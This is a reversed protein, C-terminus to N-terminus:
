WIRKAVMAYRSVGGLGVEGVGKAEKERMKVEKERLARLGEPDDKYIWRRKDEEVEVVGWGGVRKGGTDVVMREREKMDKYRSRAFSLLAMGLVLKFALLVLYFVLFVVVMTAFAILDNVSWWNFSLSEPGGTGTGFSSRGLARRFIHDIHALAATTAPSTTSASETSLSTATSPLPLPMHTALFMHYTQVVARIFLCSLPLVPLGLRKTLNQDAFAHSYYDKALVDLFRGYITPKTNNFKTIYAHKVWDVLMESGLVLLFPGFVQGTWKPFITFSLPIISTSRVASTSSNGRLNGSSSNSEGLSISLGGVEVINRMAIIMLMLWLQFREVVDACTLQFLNEKEFKKFVTGKIEVFQNSMLLTLLANSYSNVAVNLTIVQYFLATAHIVNYALALMFMWFPRIIKSRGDANRDLTERSFLCELVDQGLASFLRDCVELVNYIVYLKIAAQGRIGHYMKSADFRMLIACSAIVLFGKLLDAKHSPLLASPTSKTRRHRYASSRAHKRGSEPFGHTANGNERATTTANLPAAASLSPRRSKSGEESPTNIACPEAMKWQRRWVRGTGSYIFSALDRIEKVIVSGVWKILIWIAKFFRLPLITFVYLWADLCALAGFGLIQELQPPLFLFNLLREFKIKSSEYPFDTTAPRYIYLPSPKDSSLELQLYTPMSLPPLPMSPPMPSAVPEPLASSPKLGASGNANGGKDDLNLPPPVPRGSRQGGVEFNYSPNRQSSQKRRIVPPTSVARSSMGPRVAKSEGGGPSKVAVVDPGQRPASTKSFSLRRQEGHAEAEGNHNEEEALIGLGGRDEHGPEKGELLPSRALPSVNEPLPSAARLPLSTPSSTLEHIQAPSLKLIKERDSQDTTPSGVTGASSRRRADGPRQIRPITKGDRSSDTLVAVDHFSERRSRAGDLGGFNDEQDPVRHQLHGDTPFSLNSTIPTLAPTPLQDNQAHPISGDGNSQTDRAGNM